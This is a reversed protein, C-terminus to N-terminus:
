AMRVWRILTAFNPPKGYMLIGIRFIKAAAWAFIVAYVLGMAISAPVQWSPVPESGAIRLVMVFPGVPPVFSLVTAFMSNPNRQIPMWLLMPLMLVMMIPAMLTQAERMDSVASGIAAMTAAILFFALFFYVLLYAVNSLDILHTLDNTILTVAGLGAYTCLILLGVGMQGLIKGTMIQMPSVASLLVEMVRSSKEEITTTLLYQGATFVAIWLLLMFAMPLLLGSGENGAKKAGEATVASTDARPRELLARIRAAQDTMGSAEIRADVIAEGVIERIRNQVQFDLRPAVFLGYGLFRGDPGPRVAASEIVVLAQRPDDGHSSTNIEDAAAKADADAPLVEVALQPAKPVMGAVAMGGATRGVPSNPDVVGSSKLAEDARAQMEALAKQRQADLVAPDFAARLRQAVLGSRDIVAIRGKVAPGDRKLLMPAVFVAVSIIIPVIVVAVVFGKTMVTSLFERLAVAFMRIM